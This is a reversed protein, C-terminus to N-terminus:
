ASFSTDIWVRCGYTLLRRRQRPFVKAFSYLTSNYKEAPKDFILKTAADLALARVCDAAAFEQIRLQFDPVLAIFAAAPEKNIVSDGDRGPATVCIGMSARRTEFLSRRTRLPLTPDWVKNVVLSALVSPDSGRYEMPLAVVSNYFAM